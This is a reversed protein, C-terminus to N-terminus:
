DASGFKEKFFRYAIRGAYPFTLLATYHGLPVFLARPKGMAKWLRRAYVPRVIRDFLSIYMAVSEKKVYQAFLLPETKIHRIMDLALDKASKAKRSVERRVLKRITRNRTRAIVHAVPAGALAIVHCKPRSDLAAVVSGIIAGFSIGFTGIKEPETKEHRVIWDLAKLNRIVAKRLYREIQDFDRDFDYSFPAHHVVVANFGKRAFFRAFLRAIRIGRFIPTVLITPHKGERRSEYVTLDIEDIGEKVQPFRLELHRVAYHRTVKSTQIRSVPPQDSYSYYDKWEQPSLFLNSATTM